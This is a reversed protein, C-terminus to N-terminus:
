KEGGNDDHAAAPASQLQSGWKKQWARLRRAFEERNMGRHFRPREVYPYLAAPLLRYLEAATAPSDGHNWMYADIASVRVHLAEHKKIVERVAADAQPTALYALGQVAKVQIMEELDRETLREAQSEAPTLPAWVVERLQAVADSRKMEGLIGLVVLRQEIEEAPLQQYQRAMAEVAGPQQRLRAVVEAVVPLDRNTARYIQPLLDFLALEVEDVSAVQPLDAVIQWLRSAEFGQGMEMRSSSRRDEWKPPEPTLLPPTPAPAGLAGAPLLLSTLGLGLLIRNKM